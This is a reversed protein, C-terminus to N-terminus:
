DTSGDGKTKSTIWDYGILAAVGFPIKRRPPAVGSAAQFAEFLDIATRNEGGLVYREGSVGSSKPPRINSAAM